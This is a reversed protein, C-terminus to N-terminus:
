KYNSTNDAVASGCGDNNIPYGYVKATSKLWNDVCNQIKDYWDNEDFSLDEQYIVEDLFKKINNPKPHTPYNYANEVLRM